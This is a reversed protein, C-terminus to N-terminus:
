HKRLMRHSQAANRRLDRGPHRLRAVAKAERRFRAIDAPRDLAPGLLKLAVVRDLGDQRARFVEGMGGEGLYGEIRFNGIKRGTGPGPDTAQVDM